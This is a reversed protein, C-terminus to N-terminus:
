NTKQLKNDASFVALNPTGYNEDKIPKKFHLM